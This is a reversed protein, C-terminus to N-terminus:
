REVTSVCSPSRGDVVLMAVSESVSQPSLLLVQDWNMGPMEALPGIGESWHM